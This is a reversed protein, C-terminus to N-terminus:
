IATNAGIKVARMCIHTCFPKSANSGSLMSPYEFLVPNGSVAASWSANLSHIAFVACLKPRDTPNFFSM